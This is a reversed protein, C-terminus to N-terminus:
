AKSLRYPVGAVNVDSHRRLANALILGRQNQLLEHRWKKPEVEPILM